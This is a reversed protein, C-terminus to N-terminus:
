TLYELIFFKIFIEFYVFVYMYLHNNRGQKYFLFNYVVWAEMLLPYNSLKTAHAYMLDSGLSRTLFEIM